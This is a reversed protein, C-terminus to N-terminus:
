TAADAARWLYWAATTRYPRWREGFRLLQAPEPLKRKRYATAFGKRVGFDNVPLVDPRGLQFILLMEVTWQGVGKITILREIIEEDSMRRIKAPTPVVGELTKAAIEKIYAAKSRSFGAGRLLEFEIALVEGPSPFRGHQFLAVFRKLITNAAKGNLQQHAVSRVLSVFPTRRRDPKLTIPGVKGILDAMVPDAESLHELALETM